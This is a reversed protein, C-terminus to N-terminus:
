PATLTPDPPQPGTGLTDTPAAFDTDSFGDTGEPPPPQPGTGTTGVTDLPATGAPATQVDPPVDAEPGLVVFVQARPFQSSLPSGAPLDQPPLADLDAAVLEGAARRNPLTYVESRGSVTPGNGVDVQKWGITRAQEAVRGALGSIQTGNLIAVRTATRLRAERAAGADQADTTAAAQSTVTVTETGGGGRVLFGVLAGVVLGAVLAM